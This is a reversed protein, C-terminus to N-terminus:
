VTVMDRVLTPEIVPISRTLSPEIVETEWRLILKLGTLSQTGTVSLFAELM